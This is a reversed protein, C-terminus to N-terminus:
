YVLLSSFPKYIKYGESYNRLTFARLDNRYIKASKKMNRQASNDVLKKMETDSAEAFFMKKNEM